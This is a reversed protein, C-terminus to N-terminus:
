AEPEWLVTAPLAIHRSEYCCENSTPHWKGKYKRMADGGEDIRVITDDPLADLEDPNTITRPAPVLRSVLTIREDGIANTTGGFLRYCIWGVSSKFGPVIGVGDIKVTWAEGAKVDAPDTVTTESCKVSPESNNVSPVTLSEANSEACKQVTPERVPGGWASGYSLRQAAELRDREDTLREVEARLSYVEDDRSDRAKYAEALDRKLWEVEARAEALDREMQAADTALDRLAQPTDGDPDGNDLLDARYKLAEALTPEPADVTALIVRAATTLALHPSKGQNSVNAAWALADRRDQDTIDNM